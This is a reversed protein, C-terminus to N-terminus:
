KLNPCGRLVDGYTKELSNDYLDLHELAGLSGIDGEGLKNILNRRLGLRKLHDKFRPLDLQRIESTKLSLHSLDLDEDQETFGALLDVDEERPRPPPQQVEKCVPPPADTDVSKADDEDDPADEQGSHVDDKPIPQSRPPVGIVQVRKRSRSSSPEPFAGAQSQSPTRDVDEAATM